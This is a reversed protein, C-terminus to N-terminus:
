TDNNCKSKTQIRLKAKIKINRMMVICKPNWTFTEIDDCSGVIINPVRWKSNAEKNKLENVRKQKKKKWRRKM